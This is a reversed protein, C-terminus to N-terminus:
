PPTPSPSSCSTRTSISSQQSLPPPSSPGHQNPHPPPPSPKATSHRYLNSQSIQFYRPHPLFVEKLFIGNLIAASAGITGTVITPLAYPYAIFFHLNGFVSPFQHAPNSLAGGAIPCSYGVILKRPHSKGIFPGLFIGLNGSSAFFSFARAQTRPSSNESIM